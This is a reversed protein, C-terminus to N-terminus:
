RRVAIEQQLTRRERQHGGHLVLTAINRARRSDCYCIEARVSGAGRLCNVHIRKPDQRTRALVSKKRYAWGRPVSSTQTRLRM